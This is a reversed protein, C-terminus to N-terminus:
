PAPAASQRAQPPPEIWHRPLWPVPRQPRGSRWLRSAKSPSSGDDGFTALLRITPEGANKTLCPSRVPHFSLELSTPLPLRAQGPPHQAAQSALALGDAPEQQTESLPTTSYNTPNAACKILLWLGILLLLARQTVRPM